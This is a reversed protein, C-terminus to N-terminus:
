HGGSQKGAPNQLARQINQPEAAARAAAPAGRQVPEVASGERLKDIGDVVVQDGVQLGSEIVVQDGETDGLQVTRLTVKRDAGVLYVFNDQAGRQVAATPLLEVDRRTDIQMRVNVFQNPFLASDENRFQAKLKVTGTTTDIQNDMTLLSGNALLRKQQRDYAAVPISVGAQVKQVLLPLNDEPLTFLVTIPQVQAISVLGETDSAHVINGPDVQRLGVRGGIPATVRAYTLQLRADDIQGQDALVAGEYQQVLSQQADVQQKAISDQSWLLQYRELDMRANQLLAKDRAHQGEAQTLQVQFARPDIEALLDGARVTQGERFHVRLLEGDVRSRVLVDAVPTVTGLGNLFIKLDGRGVTAISVPIPRDGEGHAGRGHGGNAHGGKATGGASRYVGVGVVVGLLVVVVLLLRSKNRPLRFRM